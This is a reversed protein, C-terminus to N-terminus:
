VSIKRLEIKFKEIQKVWNLDDNLISEFPNNIMIPVYNTDIMQSRNILYLWYENKKLKAVSYENRSWYFYPIRGDYSKVEIFRNPFEDVENNYSAIDYGENVIYEAVWDIEKLQNLRLFEFKLVYKEAEVGYIQQQELSKLFEEIEIKRKKVESFVTTDFLKKHHNNIIFSNIEKTPHKLIVGFDLLLQKFNAYKLGFAKNNIQLSKNIIDYSLYETSFIKYFEDDEKLAKFLYEIFIDNFQNIDKLSNIIQNNLIVYKDLKIILKIKIALEICGIFISRGDIVRNYFLNNIDSIKFKVKLNFKFSNSLEFFYNPTGLNGFSRLEELM